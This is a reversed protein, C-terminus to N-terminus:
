GGVRATDFAPEWAILDSARVFRIQDSTGVESAAGHPYFVMAGEEFGEPSEVSPGIGIVIGKSLIDHGFGEPVVIGTGKYTGDQREAPPDSVAIYYGWPRIV